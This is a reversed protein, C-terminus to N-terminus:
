VLAGVAPGCVAAGPTNQCYCHFMMQGAEAGLASATMAGKSTTTLLEIMSGTLGEGTRALVRLPIALDERGIRAAYEEPKMGTQQLYTSLGYGSYDVM